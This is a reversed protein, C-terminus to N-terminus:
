TFRVFQRHPGDKKWIFGEYYYHFFAFFYLSYLGGSPDAQTVLYAVPISILPCLVLPPIRTFALLKYIVNNPHGANRNQDHVSYIVYATVDHIIRPMAILLFTYDSIACIYAAIILVVNSWLYLSEISLLDPRTERYIKYAFVVSASVLLAAIFNIIQLLPIGGITFFVLKWKDYAVFFLGTVAIVSLWRWAQFIKDPRRKLLMMAIGFQQSLVHYMTYLAYILLLALEGFLQPIIIIGSIIVLAPIYLRRNYHKIYDRDALTVLSAIIHPLGFLVTWFVLNEPNDSLYNNLLTHDLGIVDIAMVFLAVPIVAYIMLLLRRSVTLKYVADDAAKAMKM